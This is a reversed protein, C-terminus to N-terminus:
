RMNKYLVNGSNVQYFNINDMNLNRFLLDDTGTIFIQVGKLSNFLLKQRTSDLESMVDDLLLIPLENTQEKIIELEAAKIALVATRQQGQSGFHKLDIGDLVIDFDDRQIGVLSIGKEVEKSFVDNLQKLFKGKVDEMSDKMNVKISPRYDIFLKEKGDTFEYHKAAAILSLSKLFEQRYKIIKSGYQALSINWVELTDTLKKNGQIGRLLNNKQSLIKLYQQLDYFYSPRSQSIGIDMLRRRESPGEKVLLLDEPCFIVANLVGMLEGVKKAPIENLKIKKKETKDIQIEIKNERVSNNALIGVYTKQCGIKILESDKSTRHSRGSACFYIAEVLNTKGQGNDGYFINVGESFKLNVDSYNRYNNLCLSKVIM